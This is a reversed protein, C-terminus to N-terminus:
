MKKWPIPFIADVSTRIEFIFGLELSSHRSLLPESFLLFLFPYCLFLSLIKERFSNGFLFLVSPLLISGLAESLLFTSGDAPNLALVSYKDNRTEPM